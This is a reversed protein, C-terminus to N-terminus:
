DEDDQGQEMLDLTARSEPSVDNLIDLFSMTALKRAREVILPVPSSPEHSYFYRAVSDLAQLAEERSRVTGGFLATGGASDRGAAPVGGDILLHQLQEFPESWPSLDLYGASQLRNVASEINQLLALMSLLQERWTDVDVSNVSAQLCAARRQSDGSANLLQSLTFPDGDPMIFIPLTELEKLVQRDNLEQLCSVRWQEDDECLSEPFVSDWHEEIHFNLVEMAACVGSLGDVHMAARILVVMIRLDRTDCLLTSCQEVINAWDIVVDPASDDGDDEFISELPPHMAQDLHVFRKELGEDSEIFIGCPADESIGQLFETLDDM